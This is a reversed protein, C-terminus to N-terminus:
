LNVSCLGEGVGEGVTLREWCSAGVLRKDKDMLSSLIFVVIM